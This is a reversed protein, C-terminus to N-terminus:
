MRSYMMAPWRPALADFAEEIHVEGADKQPSGDYLDTLGNVESISASSVSGVRTSEPM